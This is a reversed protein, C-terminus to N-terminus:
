FHGNCMYGFHPPVRASMEIYLVVWPKKYFAINSHVNFIFSKCAPALNYAHIASYKGHYPRLRVLLIDTGGRIRYGEM